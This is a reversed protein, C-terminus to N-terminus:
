PVHSFPTFCSPRAETKAEVEESVGGRMRAAFHIAPDAPASRCIIQVGVLSNESPFSGKPEASEEFVQRKDSHFWAPAFHISSM